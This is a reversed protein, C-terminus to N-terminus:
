AARKLIAALQSRAYEGVIGRAVHIALTRDQSLMARCWHGRRTHGAGWGKRNRLSAHDDDLATLHVVAQEVVDDPWDVRAEAKERWEVAKAKAEAEVLRISRQIEFSDATYLMPKALRKELQERVSPRIFEGWTQILQTAADRDKKFHAHQQLIREAAEDATRRIREPAGADWETVKKLETELLDADANKANFIVILETFPQGRLFYTDDFGAAFDLKHGAERFAIYEATM